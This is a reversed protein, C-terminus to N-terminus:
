ITSALYVYIKYRAQLIYMFRIDHKCSSELKRTSTIKEMFGLIVLQFMQKPTAEKERPLRDYAAKLESYDLRETIELLLRVKESAEIKVGVDM